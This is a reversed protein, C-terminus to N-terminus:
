LLACSNLSVQFLFTQFLVTNLLPATALGNCVVTSLFTSAFGHPFQTPHTVNDSGPNASISPNHPYTITIEIEGIEFLTKITCAAPISNLVTTDSGQVKQEISLL